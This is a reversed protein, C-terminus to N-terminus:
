RSRPDEALQIMGLLQEVQRKAPQRVFDLPDFGLGAGVLRDLFDQPKAIKRGDALDEVTLYTGAQTWTRTVRLVPAGSRDQLELVDKANTAGKRIPLAPQRDKGGLALMILDITSSKGAGNKGAVKVVGTPAPPEIRVAKVRKVNEGQLALVTLGKTASM